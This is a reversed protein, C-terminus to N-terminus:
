LSVIIFNMWHFQALRSRLTNKAMSTFYALNFLSNIQLYMGVDTIVDQSQVNFISQVSLPQWLPLTSNRSHDNKVDGSALVTCM